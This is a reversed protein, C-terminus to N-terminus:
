HSGCNHDDDGCNHDDGCSSCCSPGCPSNCAAIEEETAKRVDIIKIDFTLREGALPHNFDALVVKENVEAVRINVPGHPSHGQFVAGPQIDVDQPFNERPIERKLEANYEGYAEEADVKLVASHGPEMGELKKELGPIIQGSGFLFSLPSDPDSRDVEEGSDLTLTYEISVFVQGQIKM